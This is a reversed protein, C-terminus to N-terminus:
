LFFSVCACQTYMESERINVFGLEMRKPLECFIPGSTLLCSLMEDVAISVVLGQMFYTHREDAGKEELSRILCM